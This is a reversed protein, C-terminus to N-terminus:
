SPLWGKGLNAWAYNRVAGQTFMSKKQISLDRGTVDKNLEDLEQLTRQVGPTLNLEFDNALFEALKYTL